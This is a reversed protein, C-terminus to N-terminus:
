KFEGEVMIETLCAVLNLEADAVFASKFQYEALTIVIPPISSPKLYKSLGDYIKRYITQPDNDVNLAVWSRMDGFNKAKLADILEKLNVDAVQSLIGIDIHGSAGYPQLENLVRRFDPFHKNILAVIVKPEYTIGEKILIEEIRKMFSSALRPKEKNAIIFDIVSCRSHIPQIIRNKYNCTFIFGCNGTFEEIFGRLAPQTSQPNLYDAEDIIVIKRSETFSVTSAFQMIKTRLVDIGSEMSGNIVLFDVDTMNCLAKAVTTKGIGPPGSLLLNPIKDQEVLDNFTAKLAAPLICEDISAPKYKEVWLFQENM